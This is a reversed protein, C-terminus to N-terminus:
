ITPWIFVTGNGTIVLVKLINKFCKNIYIIAYFTLNIDMTLHSITEKRVSYNIYFKIPKYNNFLANSICVNNKQTYPNTDKLLKKKSLM